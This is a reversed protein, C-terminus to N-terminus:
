TTVFLWTAFSAVSILHTSKSLSISGRPQDPQVRIRVQRQELDLQGGSV